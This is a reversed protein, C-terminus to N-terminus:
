LEGYRGRMAAAAAMFMRATIVCQVARKAGDFDVSFSICVGPNGGVTCRDKTIIAIDGYEPPGAHVVKDYMADNGLFIEVQEM